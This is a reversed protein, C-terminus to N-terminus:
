RLSERWRRLEDQRQPPSAALFADFEVQARTRDGSRILAEILLMRAKAHAPNLRLAARCADAAQAWERRRLLLQAYNAYDRPEYPNLALLRRWYEASEDLKGVSQAIFSAPVLCRERDPAIALVAAFDDLAKVARGGNWRAYGRAERTPVDRPSEAVAKDLLPIALLCLPEALQPHREALESLAIGLDRQDESIQKDDPSRHFRVLPVEGPQLERKDRIPEETARQRLVRHDSMATHAVDSVHLRPMHCAHCADDKQKREPLSASCMLHGPQSHCALCRQRYYGNKEEAAPLVHPDHCSICGLQGKSATYCRSTQMQEVQGVAKSDRLEPLREFVSLFLQLPLGPRYEFIDRGRRVIRAEGQLHCQECVADRLAPELKRPNVITYDTQEPGTRRGGERVHLDGPGHCRECGIPYESALPLHFRNITNAVPEVHNCHCYLCQVHIPREFLMESDYGPSLDWVKQQTFWSIPSQYL